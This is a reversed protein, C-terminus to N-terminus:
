SKKRPLKELRKMHGKARALSERAEKLEAYSVSGRKTANNYGEHYADQEAQSFNRSKKNSPMM